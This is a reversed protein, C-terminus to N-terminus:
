VPIALVHLEGIDVWASGDADHLCAVEAYLITVWGEVVLICLWYICQLEGVFQDFVGILVAVLQRIHWSLIM